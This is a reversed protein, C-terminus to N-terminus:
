AFIFDASTLNQADFDQLLIKTKGFSILADDGSDIIQVHRFKTAGDTIVIRDMGDEFGQLTDSGSLSDFVFRDTAADASGILLDGGTGGILQDEGADGNLTDRGNGGLLTDNGLGGSLSDNGARGEAYDNFESMIITDHGAYMQNFVENDDARTRTLQAAYYDAASVEFGYSMYNHYWVEDARHFYNYAASFTGDTIKDSKNVSLDSGFIEFSFWIDGDWHGLNYRDPYIEGNRDFDLDFVTGRDTANKYASYLNLKRLDFQDWSQFFAM